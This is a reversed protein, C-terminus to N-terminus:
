KKQISQLASAYQLTSLLVRDVLADDFFGKPWYDLRGHKDTRSEQFNLQRQGKKKKIESFIISLNGPPFIGQAVLLRLRTILYESHTELVLQVGSNSIAVFFDALKRQHAPHLHLEPQEILVIDGAEAALCTLLVPLVQSVGTGKQNTREGDLTFDTAGWDSSKTRTSDGIEFYRTWADLANKLSTEKARNSPMALQGMRSSSSHLFSAMFEGSKGLPLIPSSSKGNKQDGPQVTRIPGLYKVRSQFLLKQSALSQAVALFMLDHNRVEARDFVWGFDKYESRVNDEGMALLFTLAARAYSYSRRTEQLSESDSFFHGPSNAPPASKIRRNKTLFDPSTKIKNLHSLAIELSKTSGRLWERESDDLAMFTKSTRNAAKSVVHADEVLRGLEKEVSVFTRMGRGREIWARTNNLYPLLDSLWFPAKSNSGDFSSSSNPLAVENTATLPQITFGLDLTYADEFSLSYGFCVRVGVRVIECRLKAGTSDSLFRPTLTLARIDLTESKSSKMDLDLGASVHSNKDNAESWVVNMSMFKSSTERNVVSNAPGLDLTNGIFSIKGNPLQEHFYQGMALISQILSSKGISNRGVVVNLNTLNVTSDRIAKFNQVSWSSIL